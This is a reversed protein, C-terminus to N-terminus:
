NKSFKKLNEYNKKLKKKKIQIEVYRNSKRSQTQQQLDIKTHPSEQLVFQLNFAFQLYLLM